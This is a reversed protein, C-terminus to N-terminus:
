AKQIEAARQLAITTQEQLNRRYDKTWDDMRMKWDEALNLINESYTGIQIPPVSSYVFVEGKENILYPVGHITLTKLTMQSENWFTYEYDVKCNM